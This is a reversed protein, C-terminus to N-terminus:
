EAQQSSARLAKARAQMTEMSTQNHSDGTATFSKPSRASAHLAEGHEFPVVEDNRGHIIHVPMEVRGVRSETDFRIRSLWRVPLFPYHHAAIDPVSTFTSELVLARAEVQTALWAAPGGGLSRGYIVIDNEPVSRDATLYQWAARADDYLGEETPRGTSKGYGRYDVLLVDYGLEAFGRALPVRSSINGANGHFFLITGDSDEANQARTENLARVMWGHLREGDSTPIRVDEFSLGMDSPTMVHDSSPLFLLQNQFAFAVLVLAAYLSAIVLGGTLFSTSNM